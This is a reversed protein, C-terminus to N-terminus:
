TKPEGTLIWKESNNIMNLIMAIIHGYENHIKKHEDISLYKCELAFDLWTQTEAAECQAIVMKSVFSKEYIRSRFAEAINASVSRSARVVQDTLSYMEERPFKRTHQFIEMASQFSLKYVDLDKHTTIKM